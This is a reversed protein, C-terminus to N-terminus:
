VLLFLFEKCNLTEFNEKIRRCISVASRLGSSTASIGVVTPKEQAVNELIDELTIRAATVDLIKVSMGNKELYASLYLLGMHYNSVEDGDSFIWDQGRRNVVMPSHILIVDVM